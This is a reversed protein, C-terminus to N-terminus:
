GSFYDKVPQKFVWYPAGKITIEGVFMFGGEYFMDFVAFTDEERDQAPWTTFGQKSCLPIVTPIGMDNEGRNTRKHGFHGEEGRAGGAMTDAM